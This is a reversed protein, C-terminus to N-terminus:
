PLARGSLTNRMATATRRLNRAAKDAAQATDAQYVPGIMKILYQIDKRGTTGTKRAHDMVWQYDVSQTSPPMTTLGTSKLAAQGLKMDKSTFDTVMMGLGGYSQLFHDVYRPDAGMLKGIAKGANSAHGKGKRLELNLEREWAPIIDKDRFTSRNFLIELPVKLPGTAEVPSGIPLMASALSGTYGEFSHKTGFLGKDIAREIGGAMVGLEHPKPIRLWHSGIKINWFFDRQWAPLQLYEEETDDDSMRNWARVALTPLVAYLGWRIAFAGPNKMGAAVSRSLGRLHANSFPVLRNVTRMVSGMKAYDMLGRAESAAFLSAEEPTYGLENIGRDYARRFEVVRGLMESSEAIKEWGRKLELPTLLINRPDKRLEAMGRKLERNWTLRDKTYNGFMGGGFALYRSQDEKTYGGLIDYPKSGHESVISRHITDRVPNRILFAPSHTIFYRAIQQPMALIDVFAHSGLDGMGKVAEYIDPDLKWDQRRGNTWVPLTNRDTARAKSGIRDLEVTEGEYLARASELADTFTRMTRNRMAEKQIADTQALLSKYVNEIELSSGKFRKVVDRATGVTSVGRDMRSQLDFEESLRHMDVYQTNEARIADVQERSLRGSDVLYQLNADAWLRYRRAAEQLRRAKNPDGGFDAMAQRAAEVDTMIGAGLGSLNQKDADAQQLIRARKRPTAPDKPDLNNIETQARADIISAKELTRQAVMMASADRMDQEQQAKSSNDFAGLLWQLNMVEGTQPDTTRAVDLRGKSNTRQQPNLPILGNELQDSLRADHSSLVRLMLDFNEGPKVDKTSRGQMQLAAKWGKVAMHYSDDFWSRWKDVLSKSFQRPDGKIATTLREMLTPPDLTRINLGARRGPSTGAWTRVDDSFRNLADMAEKPISKEFYKAFTPAQAIAAAPDMIYARVFEAIGEARKLKLTRAPSGHIWFKALEGDYPSKQKPRMWPKGIGYKDDTWHGALEHAATDLDGAFRQATLTSGPRYFGLQSPRMRRVHLAKGIAKSFDEIIKFPSKPLGGTIPNVPIRPPPPPPPQKPPPPQASAKKPPPTTTTGTTRPPPAAAAPQPQSAPPPAKAAQANAPRTGNFVHRMWEAKAASEANDAQEVFFRKLLPTWVGKDSVKMAELIADFDKAAWASEFLSAFSAPTFVRQPSGLEDETSGTQRPPFRERFSADMDDYAADDGSQARQFADATRATRTRSLEDDMRMQAREAESMRIAGALGGLLDEAQPVATEATNKPKESETGALIDGLEGTTELPGKSPENPPPPPTYGFMDASADAPAATPGAAPERRAPVDREHPPLFEDPAPTTEDVHVLEGADMQQRGFKDGDELTVRDVNGDADLEVGIVTLPEGNVEIVDNLSLQETQVTVKSEKPQTAKKWSADQRKGTQLAAKEEKALQKDRQGAERGQKRRAELDSRLREMFLDVDESTILGEQYADGALKDVERGGERTLKAYYARMDRFFDRLADHEGHQNTKRGMRDRELQPPRGMGGERRILDVADFEVGDTRDFIRVGRQAMGKKSERAPAAGPPTAVGGPTMQPPQGAKVAPGTMGAQGRMSPPASSEGPPPSLVPAAVTQSPSDTQDGDSGREMVGDQGMVGESVTGGTAPTSGADTKPTVPAEQRTEAPPITVGTAPSPTVSANSFDKAAPMLFAPLPVAAPQASVTQGSESVAQGPAFALFDPPPVPDAAAAVQPPTVGSTQQSPPPVTGAQAPPPIGGQAANPAAPQPAPGPDPANPTPAQPSPPPTAPNQPPLLAGIGAMSTELAGTGIAGMAAAELVQANSARPDQLKETLGEQAAETAAGRALQGAAGAMGAKRAASLAKSGRLLPLAASALDIPSTQMEAGRTIMEKGLGEDMHGMVARMNQEAAYRLQRTRQQNETETVRKKFQEWSAPDRTAVYDALWERPGPGFENGKASPNRDSEVYARVKEPDIKGMYDAAVVKKAFGWTLADVWAKTDEDPISTADYEGALWSELGPPHTGTDLDEKLADLTKDRESQRSEGPMMQKSTQAIAAGMDALGRKLRTGSGTDTFGMADSGAFWAAAGAAPMSKAMEVAATGVFDAGKRMTSRTDARKWLESAVQRREDSTTDTGEGIAIRRIFDRRQNEDQWEPQQTLFDIDATLQDPAAPM